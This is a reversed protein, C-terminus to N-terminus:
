MRFHFTRRIYRWLWGFASRKAAIFRANGRLNPKLLGPSEDLLVTAQYAADELQEKGERDTVTALSGGYKVSLTDPAFDSQATAIQSIAGRFVRDPLHDFKLGVSMDLKVDHLDAQDLHLLAQMGDTPAISLLHTREDLVSGANKADLPTGTWGVLRTRLQEMKPAPQRPPAVVTGACPAVIQLHKRQQSLEELQQEVSRLSEEAMARGGSDDSVKALHIAKTQVERAVLLQRARDELKPDFLEALLEGEAVRDGPQVHLAILEGPVKTMVHRVDRPEIVFAASGFWPIPIMGLAVIVGLLVTASVAVRWKKIPKQRPTAFLQYARMGLGWLVGFVSVAALTQGVSQLGYPKLVTYLFLLISFLIIWGYIASAVAFLAFWHRGTQPMFPDHRPEVGLCVRALTEQLLKDAKQRLNPIELFDSLMYYGDLRMLPNANFIVTTAATVFFLNLCLYHLLGPSTFWWIFIAAASLVVEIMMGAAGILIRKWKNKLMWSDSVDCYLCPTGVLLMVGMEHCESGFAKCSLGHGFEHIIKAGALTLWLFILNPWGFFQNFAPLRSQFTQFQTALLLWSALVFLSALFATVPHFIWGTWPLMRALMADPDWGPLRLSMINTDVIWIKQRRKKRRQEIRPAAQGPRVGYALGKQHLDAILHQVDTLTPILAPFERILEDRISELHRQGDLMQLVRFQDCRLMHYTLGVADKVMFHAVGRFEMREVILDSRGRLPVPRQSSSTQESPLALSM